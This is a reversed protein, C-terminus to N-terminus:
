VANKSIIKRLNERLKLMTYKETYIQRNKEGWDSWNERQDIAQRLAQELSHSLDEVCDEAVVGGFEEGCVSVNARWDTVVIPLSWQLAEILVMGFSEYPAVSSFIFLDAEKYMDALDDGTLIGKWVIRDAVGTSKIDALLQKETYPSLPEGVLLLKVNSNEVALKGFADILQPSGKDACLHGVSLMTLVESQERIYLGKAQDEFANPLVSVREIGASTADRKGYESLVVADSTFNKYIFRTIFCFWGPSRELREKLGAAQFHIVLRRSCLSLVPLLLWDRIIPVTHPGGAPYLLFDIAGRRRISLARGVVKCFELLKSFGLRRAGTWSKTFEFKLHSVHLDDESSLLEYVRKININQGGIPPPMQGAIVIHPQRM